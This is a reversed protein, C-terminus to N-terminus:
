KQALLRIVDRDIRKSFKLIYKILWCPASELGLHLMAGPTTRALAAIQANLELQMEDSMDKAGMSGLGDKLIQPALVNPLSQIFNDAFMQFGLKDQLAAVALAALQQYVGLQTLLGAQVDSHLAAQAGTDQAVKIRSAVTAETHRRKLKINEATIALVEQRMNTLTDRTQQLEDDRDQLQKRVDSLEQVMPQSKQELARSIQQMADIARDLAVNRVTDMNTIRTFAVDVATNAIGIFDRLKQRLEKASGDMCYLQNQLLSVDTSDWHAPPIPAIDSINAHTTAVGAKALAAFREGSALLMVEFAALQKDLAQTFGFTTAAVQADRASSNELLTMIQTQQEGVQTHSLQAHSEEQLIAIRADRADLAQQLATVQSQHSDKQQCLASQASDTHRKSTVLQEDLTLIRQQLADIEAKDSGQPRAIESNMVAQLIALQRLANELKHLVSPQIENSGQETGAGSGQGQEEQQALHLGLGLSTSALLHLPAEGENNQQIVTAQM